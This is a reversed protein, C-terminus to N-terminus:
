DKFVEISKESQVRYIPKIVQRRTAARRYVDLGISEAGFIPNLQIDIVLSNPKSLDLLAERRVEQRSTYLLSENFYYGRRFSVVIRHVGNPLTVTQGEKDSLTIAEDDIRAKVEVPNVLNFEIRKLTREVMVNDGSEFRIVHAREDKHPEFPTMKLTLLCTSSEIRTPEQPTLVVTTLSRTYKEDLPFFFRAARPSEDRGIAEVTLEIGKEALRYRGTVLVDIDARKMTDQVFKVMRGDSGPYFVLDKLAARDVINIRKKQAFVYGFEQMVQDSFGTIFNKDDFIGYLCVKLRKSPEYPEVIYALAAITVPYLTEDTHTVPDFFVFAGTDIEKSEKTIEVVSSQYTSSMVACRGIENYPAGNRDPTVSGIDGKIIGDKQGVTAVAKDGNVVTMRENSLPVIVGQVPGAALCPCCQAGLLTVALILTWPNKM